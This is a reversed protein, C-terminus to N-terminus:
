FGEELRRPEAPVVTEEGGLPPCGGSQFSNTFKCLLMQHMKWRLATSNTYVRRTTLDIEQYPM